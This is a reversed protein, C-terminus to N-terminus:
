QDHQRKACEVLGALDFSLEACEQQTTLELVATADLRNTRVRYVLRLDYHSVAYDDSGHGPVYPDVPGALVDKATQVATEAASQAGSVLDVAREVARDVARRLPESM